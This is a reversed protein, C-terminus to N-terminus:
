SRLLYDMTKRLKNVGSGIPPNDVVICVGSAEALSHLSFALGDSSDISSSALNESKLLLGLPLRPEPNMISRIAKAKFRSEAKSKGDLIL